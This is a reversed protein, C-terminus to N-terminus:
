LPPPPGQPRPREGPPGHRLAGSVIKKLKQKQEENCIEHIRNFHDYVELERAKSLRSIRDAISDLTRKTQDEEGLGSFLQQKLNRLEGDMRRMKHRHEELFGSFIERQESNFELQEAIFEIPPRQKRDPKQVILYLLVGNMVMLFFLLVILLVSKKM